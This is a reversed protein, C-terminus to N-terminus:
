YPPTSGKGITLLSITATVTKKITRPEKYQSKKLTYGLNIGSSDICKEHKVEYNSTNRYSGLRKASPTLIQM